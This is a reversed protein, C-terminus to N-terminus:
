WIVPEARLPLVGRGPAVTVTALVKVPLFNATTVPVSPLNAKSVIGASSIDNANLEHSERKERPFDDQIRIIRGCLDVCLKQEGGALL